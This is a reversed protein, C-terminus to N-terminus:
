LDLESTNPAEYCHLSAFESTYREDEHQDQGDPRRAPDSMQKTDELAPKQPHHHRHRHQRRQHLHKSSSISVGDGM